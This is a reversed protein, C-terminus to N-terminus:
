LRPGPNSEWLVRVGPQSSVTLSPSCVFSTSCFRLICVLFASYVYFYVICWLFVCHSIFGARKRTSNIRRGATCLIANASTCSIVLHKGYLHLLVFDVSRLTAVQHSSIFDKDFNHSGEPIVVPHTMEM